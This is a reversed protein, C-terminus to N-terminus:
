PAKGGSRLNLGFPADNGSAAFGRPRAADCAFLSIEILKVGDAAADNVLADNLGYGDKVRHPIATSVNGGIAKIGKTLIYASTVGDVDYDGIVRISKGANVAAPIEEAARKTDKMLFPDHMENVSGGLFSRAEEATLIDRNRLVRATVVDIGLDRSWSEFDAKKTQIFWKEM